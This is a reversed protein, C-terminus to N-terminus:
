PSEGEREERSREEGLRQTAKEKIIWGIKAARPLSRNMDKM